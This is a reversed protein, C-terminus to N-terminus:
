FRGISKKYNVCLKQDNCFTKKQIYIQAMSEQTVDIYKIDNSIYHTFPTSM